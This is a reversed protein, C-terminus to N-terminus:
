DTARLREVLSQKDLNRFCLYPILIAFVILVPTCIVLPLLTFHFTSFGSATLARVIVGVTLSGLLYSILLTLLAYDLGEFTLMKCLQRKTMGISQIMAFEKKRSIIATVMSNVFNLIGVLAIIISITYGMVASSRTQSEYQKVLTQRSTIKMGLAETQQYDTLLTEADELAADTINFYYKQLSSEPWLQLFTESPIILPLDFALSFGGEQMPDLPYLIAMVTFDRNEISVKEGISFTPLNQGPDVAPGIALVYQGTAFKEADFAGDLIYSSSVAADLILGDAGYLTHSVEQGSVALDFARKWAPFTPDYSAFDDLREKTYYTSLNNRTQSSLTSNIQRSYLRGTAEVHNLSAIDALLINSITQSQPDYGGPASNTADDLQYDAVSLHLLYKEIDFSVNKAYFFSMLVMGLTLSCIVIITRKRNRGLNAWAMASLSAGNQSKKQKRKLGSDSDTYRLAEIPSVKGALRAPLMCSTIVTIYAFLTSGLFIIPSLSAKTSNGLTSLLVPVLVIGLLYGIILGAPIGLLCLRNSQGFIMKKIQKKTTGLTKLKGYFQIDATISIQFINFIILYGALFVMIMGLYIPLNEALLTQKIEPTYTINTTFKLDSLGCDSLIRDMVTDINKEDALTVSMTRQGCIQDPAPAHANECADLAFEESVWAMSAYIAANGEWWGCLTFTSPITDAKSLDKRWELTIQQGLELPIGLQKLILTDLAIENKAQPLRGTTPMSFSENAANEDAYCIEVSQGALRQNEALGVVISRSYAVVDPHAAIAEIQADTIQKISSHATTGAQRLYMETLNQNMSQALTFLTTFMMTTLIIALIAVLNRRKNNKFSRNTLTTIMSTPKKMRNEM